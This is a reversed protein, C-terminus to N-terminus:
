DDLISVAGSLFSENPIEVIVQELTEIRSTSMGISKLTGSHGAVQITQGVSFREQVHRGAAVQRAVPLSGLGVALGGALALALVLGGVLLLLVDTSVGLQDLAIIAGIALFGGGIAMRARAAMMTSVPRLSTEVLLGVVKGGARALIIVLVAVLLRPLYELASDALVDARDPDLVVLGGVVIISLALAPAVQTLVTAFTGKFRRKVIALLIWGILLLGAVLSSTIITNELTM